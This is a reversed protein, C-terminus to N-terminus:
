AYTIDNNILCIIPKTDFSFYRCSQSFTSGNIHLYHLALGILNGIFVLGCIIPKNLSCCELTIISKISLEHVFVVRVKYHCTGCSSSAKRSQCSAQQSCPFPVSPSLDVCDNAQIFKRCGTEQSSLRQITSSSEIPARTKSSSSSQLTMLPEKQQVADLSSLRKSIIQQREELADRGLWVWENDRNMRQSSTAQFTLFYVFIKYRVQIVLDLRM